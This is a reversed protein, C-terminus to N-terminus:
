DSLVMRHGMFADYGLIHHNFTTYNPTHSKFGIVGISIDPSSLRVIWDSDIRSDIFPSPACDTHGVM